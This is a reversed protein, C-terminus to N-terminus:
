ASVRPNTAKRKAKLWQNMAFLIIVLPVVAFYPWYALIRPEAPMVDINAAVEANGLKSDITAVLKWPGEATLNVQSAYLLKNTAKAHTAPVFIESIGDPTKHTLHLKVNADLVTSKGGSTQVMVSLDGTGVRLPEPSSFISITLPGANQRVLLAGGDALLSGLCVSLVFLTRYVTKM